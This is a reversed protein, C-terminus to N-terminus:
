ILKHASIYSPKKTEGLVMINNKEPFEQGICLDFPLGNVVPFIHTFAGPSSFSAAVFECPLGASLCFAGIATTYEVCNARRDSLIANLTRIQQGRTHPVFPANEYLFTCFKVLGALNNTAGIKNKIIQLNRGKADHRAVQKM